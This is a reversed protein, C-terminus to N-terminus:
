FDLEKIGNPTEKLGVKKVEKVYEKNKRTMELDRYPRNHKLHITLASYCIQKPRIGNNLLRQGLETDEDGYGIDNNYGNVLIIDDRWASSNGGRWTPTHTTINNFLTAFFGNPKFLFKIGKSKKPAGNKIFWSLKFARGSTVDERTIMESIKLSLRYAGGSLYYGREAYMEHTEIFNYRPVCDQDTFILYESESAAIAKNSIVTKQFGNDEHWIHKIPLSCRFSDILLKTEETSGDDAIIIEDAQRTQTCYGWLTKELWKPSNYTSIIIGINM